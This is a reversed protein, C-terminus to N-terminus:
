GTFALARARRSRDRGTAWVRVMANANNTGGILIRLRRFPAKAGFLQQEPDNDAGQFPTESGINLGLPTPTGVLIWGLQWNEGDLSIQEQIQLTPNMGSVQSTYGGVYLRDVSGFLESLSPSSYVPQGTAAYGEFAMVHFIRM